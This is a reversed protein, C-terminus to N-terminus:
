SKKFAHNKASAARFAAERKPSVRWNPLDGTEALYVENGKRKRLKVIAERVIQEKLLAMAHTRQDGTSYFKTEGYAGYLDRDQSKIMDENKFTFLEDIIRRAQVDSVGFSVLSGVTDFLTDVDAKEFSGLSQTFLKLGAGYKRGTKLVPVFFSGNGWYEHVEDCLIAVPRRQKDQERQVLANFVMNMVLAGLFGRTTEDKFFANSDNVLFIRGRNFADYFDITADVSDLMPKIFPNLLFSSLKNRSSEIDAAHQKIFYSWFQELAPDNAKKIIADRLVPSELFPLAQSLPLDAKQLTLWLRLLVDRMRDGFADRWVGRFLAVLSDACVFPDVGRIRLPDIIPVGHTHDTLDIIIVDQPAYGLVITAHLMWEFSDRNTDICMVSSGQSLEKLGLLKLAGSKGLGPLGLCLLHPNIM